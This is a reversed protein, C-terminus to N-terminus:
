KKDLLNIKYELNLNSLYIKFLVLNNQINLNDKNNKLMLRFHLLDKQHNDSSLKLLKFPTTQFVESTKHNNNSKNNLVTSLVKIVQIIKHLLHM